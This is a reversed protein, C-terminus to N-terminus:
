IKYLRLNDERFCIWSPKQVIYKSCNAEAYLKNHLKNDSNFTVLYKCNNYNTLDDIAVIRGVQGIYKDPTVPVTEFIKMPNIDKFGNVNKVIVIDNLNFADTKKLM